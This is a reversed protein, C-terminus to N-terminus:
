KLWTPKTPMVRTDTVNLWAQYWEKLEKNQEETLMNYWMQSKQDIFDFCDRQRRLRLWNDEDLCELKWEGDLYRWNHYKPFSSMKQWQEDTIEIEKTADSIYPSELYGKSNIKVKM